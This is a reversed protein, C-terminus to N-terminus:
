FDFGETKLPNVKFNAYTNLVVDIPLLLACLAVKLIQDNFLLHKLYTIKKLKKFYRIITM